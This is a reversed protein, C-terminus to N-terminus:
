PFVGRRQHTVEFAGDACADCGEHQGYHPSEPSLLFEAYEQPTMEAFRAVEREDQQRYTPAKPQVYRAKHDAEREDEYYAHKWEDKTWSWEIPNGCVSCHRRKM